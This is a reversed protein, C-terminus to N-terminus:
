STGSPVSHKVRAKNFREVRGDMEGSGKRIHLDYLKDFISKNLVGKQIAQEIAKVLIEVNTEDAAVKAQGSEQTSNNEASLSFSILLTLCLWVEFYLNKKRTLKM